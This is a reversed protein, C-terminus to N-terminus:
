ALAGQIDKDFMAGGEAKVAAKVAASHELPANEVGNVVVALAAKKRKYGLALWGLATLISGGSGTATVPNDAAWKLLSAASDTPAGLAEIKAFADDRDKEVKAKVEALGTVTANVIPSLQDVKASLKGILEEGKQITGCGCCLLSLTLLITTTPRM